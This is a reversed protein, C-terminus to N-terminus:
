GPWKDHVRIRASWTPSSRTARAGQAGAISSEAVAALSERTRDDVVILHSL